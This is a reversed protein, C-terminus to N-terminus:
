STIEVSQAVGDKIMIILGLGSDKVQKYFDVFEEKTFKEPPAMGGVAQFITEDNLKFLHEEEELTKADQYNTPDKYYDLSGTVILKNGDITVNSVNTLGLDDSGEPKVSMLSSSYKGEDKLFDDEEQKQIESNEKSLSKIAEKNTNKLSTTNEDLEKITEETEKTTDNKKQEEKVLTEQKKPKDEVKTDNNCGAFVFTGTLLIALIKKNM